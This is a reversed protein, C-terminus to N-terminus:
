HNIQENIRHETFKAKIRLNQLKKLAVCTKLFSRFKVIVIDQSKFIIEGNYKEIVGFAMHSNESITLTKRSYRNYYKDGFCIKYHYCKSEELIRAVDLPHEYSAIIINGNREHHVCRPNDFLYRLTSRTVEEDM